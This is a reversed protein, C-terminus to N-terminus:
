KPDKDKDGKKKTETEEPKNGKKEKNWRKSVQKLEAGGPQL